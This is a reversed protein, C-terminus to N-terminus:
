TEKVKVVVEYEKKRGGDTVIRLTMKYKKGSAGGIVWFKVFGYQHTVAQAGIGLAVEGSVGDPLTVTTSAITDGSIESLYPNIDIDYDQEEWPQKEFNAVIM